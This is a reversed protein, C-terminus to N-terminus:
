LASVTHYLGTRFIKLKVRDSWFGSVNSAMLSYLGANIGLGAALLPIKFTAAAGIGLVTASNTLDRVLEAKQQANYALYEIGWWYTNHYYSGGARSQYKETIGKEENLKYWGSSLKKNMSLVSIEINTYLEEPSSFENNVNLESWNEKMYDLVVSKNITLQNSEVFIQSDIFEIHKQLVMQKQYNSYSIENARAVNGYEYGLSALPNVLVAVGLMASMIKTRTRM